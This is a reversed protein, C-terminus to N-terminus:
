DRRWASVSASLTGQLFLQQGIPKVLGQQEGATGMTAL